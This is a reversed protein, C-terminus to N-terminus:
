KDGKTSIYILVTLASAFAATIVFEIIKIIM